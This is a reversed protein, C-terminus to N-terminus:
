DDNNELRNDGVTHLAGRETFTFTLILDKYSILAGDNDGFNEM